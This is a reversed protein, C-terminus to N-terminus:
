PLTPPSVRLAAAFRHYVARAWEDKRRAMAMLAGAGDYILISRARLDPANEIMAVYPLLRDGFAPNSFLRGDFEIEVGVGAERAQLVVTDMRSEAVDPHFFYNPQLWVQDIGMERWSALGQSGYYPVWMFQYGAKHVGSVVRAVTSTDTAPITENLWYFGQLRLRNFRGDAFRAAAQKAYAIVAEARGIADRTEFKRGGFWLSDSRSDPYPVMLVVNFAHGLPGAAHTVIDVASDLRAIPGGVKFLSDQYAAWDSGTAPLAHPVAPFMYRTGSSTKFETFLVGDCLWGTPHGNTDLVSIMAVLDGVNYAPRSPGGAYAAVLRSGIAPPTQGAANGAAMAWFVVIAAVYSKRRM